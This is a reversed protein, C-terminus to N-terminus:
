HFVRIKAEAVLEPPGCQLDVRPGLSVRINPSAQTIVTEDLRTGEM